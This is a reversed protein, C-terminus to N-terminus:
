TREYMMGGITEVLQGPRFPGDCLISALAERDARHGDAYGVAVAALLNCEAEDEIKFVVAEVSLPNYGDAQIFTLFLKVDFSGIRPNIIVDVNIFLTNVCHLGIIM